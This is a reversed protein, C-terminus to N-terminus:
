AIILCEVQKVFFMVASPLYGDFLFSHTAEDDWAMSLTSSVISNRRSEVFNVAVLVCGISLELDELM